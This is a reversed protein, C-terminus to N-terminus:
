RELYNEQSISELPYQQSMGFSSCWSRSIVSARVSRASAWGTRIASISSSIWPPAIVAVSDALPDALRRGGARKVQALQRLVAEHLFGAAAM